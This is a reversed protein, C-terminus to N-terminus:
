DPAPRGPPTDAFMDRHHQLVRRQEVVGHAGVQGHAALASVVRAPAGQFDGLQASAIRTNGCPRSLM